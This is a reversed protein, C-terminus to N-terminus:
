LLIQYEHFYMFNQCGDAAATIQPIVFICYNAELHYHGLTALRLTLNWFGWMIGLLLVGETNVSSLLSSLLCNNVTMKCAPNWSHPCVKASGTTSRAASPKSAGVSPVAPGLQTLDCKFQVHSLLWGRTLYSSLMFAAGFCKQGPPLYYGDSPLHIEHVDTFSPRQCKNHLM